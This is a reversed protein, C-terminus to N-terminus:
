HTLCAGRGWSMRKKCTNVPVRVEVWKRIRTSCAGRVGVEVWKRIRTLRASWCLENKIKVFLCGLYLLPRAKESLSLSRSYRLPAALMCPSSKHTHTHAHAQTHTHTSACLNAWQMKLTETMKYLSTSFQISAHEPREETV